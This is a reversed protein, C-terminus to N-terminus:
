LEVLCVRLTFSNTSHFSKNDYRSQVDSHINLVDIKLASPKGQIELAMSRWMGGIGNLAM